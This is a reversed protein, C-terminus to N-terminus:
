TARRPKLARGAVWARATCPAPMARGVSGQLGGTAPGAQSLSASLVARAMRCQPASRGTPHIRARCVRWKGEIDKIGRRCARIYSYRGAPGTYQAEVDLASFEVECTSRGSFVCCYNVISIHLGALYDAIPYQQKYLPLITRCQSPYHSHRHPPSSLLRKKTPRSRRQSQQLYEASIFRPNKTTPDEPKESSFMLVLASRFAFAGPGSIILRKHKNISSCRESLAWEPEQHWALIYSHFQLARAEFM